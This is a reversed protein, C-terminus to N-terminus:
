NALLKAPYVGQAIRDEISRVVMERDQRYTVGFWEEPSVEVMVRCKGARLLEDVAAPLFFEAREDQGNSELFCEFQSRLHEFFSFDFGWMNMSVVSNEAFIKNRGDGDIGEIIGNAGMAIRTHEKISRLKGYKSVDCIGRSVQGHPSLTNKLLFGVMAYDEIEGKAGGSDTLCRCIIRYSEPGYFDDANIVAFSEKVNGRAALVAHATGWPKTRGAPVHFPAPLDTMKQLAYDVTFNRNEYVKFRERFTAELEERIVLVVKGFGARRADYVSYDLVIEGNPGVPDVQKLGGYRSGLGAALVVLTPQM